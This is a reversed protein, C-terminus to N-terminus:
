RGVGTAMANNPDLRVAEKFARLAESHNFAYTLRLGQDFFRQSESSLTTVPFHYDGLGELKPAIPAESTSPDTALARADHIKAM